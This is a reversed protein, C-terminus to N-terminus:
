VQVSVQTNKGPFCHAKSAECFQELTLDMRSVYVGYAARFLSLLACM